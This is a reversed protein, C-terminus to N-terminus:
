MWPGNGTYVFPHHISHEARDPYDSRYHGGRSEKRELAAQTIIRAADIMNCLMVSQPNQSSIEDLISMAHKMSQENRVLGVDNWMTQRLLNVWKEEEHTVFTPRKIYKQSPLEYKINWDITDLIDQSVRAGFVLGELLSNSALRNAGHVGTASVEGCAWLGPCTTRGNEDVSVGGMHYHAAPSVPLMESMPELNAQKCFGYVTPFKSPFKDGICRADLM